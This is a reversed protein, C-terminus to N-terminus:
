VGSGKGFALKKWSSLEKESDAETKHNFDSMPRARKKQMSRNRQESESKFVGM